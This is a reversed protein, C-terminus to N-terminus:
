KLVITEANESDKILSQQDIIPLIRSAASLRSKFGYQSNISIKSTSLSADYSSLIFFNNIDLEGNSM